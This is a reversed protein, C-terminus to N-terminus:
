PRPQLTALNCPQLTGLNGPGQGSPFEAVQCSLLGAVWYSPLGTGRSGMFGRRASANRARGKEASADISVTRAFKTAYVVAAPAARVESRIVVASCPSSHDARSTVAGPSSSDFPLQLSM